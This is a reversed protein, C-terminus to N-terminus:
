ARTGPLVPWDITQDVVRHMERFWWGARQLRKKRPRVHHVPRRLETRLCLELQSIASDKINM